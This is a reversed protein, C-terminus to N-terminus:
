VGYSDRAMELLHASMEIKSVHAQKAAGPSQSM